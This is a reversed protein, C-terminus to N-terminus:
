ENEQSTKAILVDITWLVTVDGFGEEGSVYGLKDV